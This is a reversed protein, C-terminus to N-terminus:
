LLKRWSPAFHKTKIEEGEHGRLVLFGIPTHDDGYIWEKYHRVECLRSILDCMKNWSGGSTNRYMKVIQPTAAVAKIRTISQLTNPDEVYRQNITAYGGGEMVLDYIRRLAMMQESYELQERGEQDDETNDNM